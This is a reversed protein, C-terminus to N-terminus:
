PPLAPLHEASFSGLLSLARVFSSLLLRLLVASVRYLYDVDPRSLFNRAIEWILNFNKFNQETACLSDSSVKHEIRVVWWQNFRWLARESFVSISSTNVEHWVQKCDSTIRQLRTEHRSKVWLTRIVAKIIKNKPPIIKLLRLVNKRLHEATLSLSGIIGLM